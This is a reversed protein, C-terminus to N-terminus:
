EVRVARLLLWGAEQREGALRLGARELGAATDERREAIIGSALLRGGPALAAAFTPALGIIVEAVINAVLLEVPETLAALAEGAEGRRVTIRDVVGNRRANEEAVRCAVPDVDCAIVRGAGLKVAAIGLIGSGTGVDAVVEGGRIEEELATLCLVTTPHTGTGFAMGPDLTLVAEGPRPRYEEWSPHVVLRGLRFAHYYRKWNEAWESERRLAVEVGAEGPDLGWAPLEALFRQLEDLRQESEPGAPWYAIVRPVRPVPVDDPFLDWPSERKRRGVLFPDEIVVGASGLAEAKAAVAEVAEATTTVAVELWEM